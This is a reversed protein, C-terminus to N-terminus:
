SSRIPAHREGKRSQRSRLKSNAERLAANENELRQNKRRALTLQWGAAKTERDKEIIQRKLRMIDQRLSAILEESSDPQERELRGNCVRCRVSSGYLYERRGCEQCRMWYWKAM